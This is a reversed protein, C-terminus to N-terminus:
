ARAALYPQVLARMDAPPADFGAARLSREYHAFGELAADVDDRALCELILAKSLRASDPYHELGRLYIRRARGGEGGAELAAGAALALDAFSRQLREAADVSWASTRENFSLPGPFALVIAERAEASQDARHQLKAQWAALDVWVKDPALWLKGERQILLDAQGILKRLRHVAQECAAKAQDGDLDPWLRDQVTELACTADKSIALMRLIDLARTPAKAGVELPAGDREISFSGLVYIKLPWPWGAPRREPAALRREAILGRCFEPDIGADLADGLLEALLEPLNLLVMPWGAARLEALFARLLEDYGGDGNWKAEITRAARILLQARKLGGSELRPLLEELLVAADGARREALLVQLTTFYHPLRERMPENAAEIAAMFRDCERHAEIFEGQRAHLTALCDAVVAVQTTFRSDAIESLRALLPRLEGFSNHYKMQMQLHYLAGFEVGRLAEREGIEIAARLAAEATAYPFGRRSYPFYRGSKSGFAVLWSGLTWPLVSAQRVDDLVSDVASAFVEGRMVSISHEILSESALLRLDSSDEGGGRMLRELLGNVLAQGAEGGHYYDDAFNLARVMGIQMLLGEDGALAPLGAEIMALARRTWASLGEYTRWSNTKVLVARSVTLAQGRRDGADEFADWARALWHEVAADDPMHADGLWYYLWGTMEAEPLARCWEIFTARRGEALVSQARELILERALAWAGAELALAIADDARGVQRLALAATTRLEVLEDTSLTQALRRSLFERLLDHLHFLDASSQARTVLLQRQYLWDLLEGARETGLMAKALEASIDPLVSLKQLLEMDSAAMSQFVQRGLSDFFEDPSSGPRDSPRVLLGREALLVLGVAWGRAAAVDVTADPQRAKVLARAEDDSFALAERDMLAIRGRTVLDSLEEQPLTRSLCICGVADPLESVLVSLLRRFEPTDADQLDDLVLATGPALQGFFARFFRRAFEVPHEAYEVGFVPVAAAAAGLSQALYGFFRAVDQDGEDVRLWVHPAARSELYDVVATTKGYGAPAAIWCVGGDLKQEIMAVLRERHLLQTVRPTSLKAVVAVPRATAARSKAASRRKALM